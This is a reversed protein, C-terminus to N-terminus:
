GGGPHWYVPVGVISNRLGDTYEFLGGIGRRQSLRREYEFGISFEADHGKEDTVGAFFGIENPHYEHGHHDGEQGHEEHAAGKTETAQGPTEDEQAAEPAGVVIVSLLCM